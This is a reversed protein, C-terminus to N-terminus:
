LLRNLWIRTLYVPEASGAGVGFGADRGIGQAEIVLRVPGRQEVQLVTFEFPLVVEEGQAPRMRLHGEGMGHDFVEYSGELALASFKGTGVNIEQEGAFGGRGDFIAAGVAAVRQGGTSLLLEYRGELSANSFGLDLSRPGTIEPQLQPVPEAIHEAYMLFKFVNAVQWKQMLYLYARRQIDRLVASDPFYTLAWDATKGALEHDGNAIMRNVAVAIAEPSLGLYRGLLSGFDESTLADVAELQPGWYGTTQKYLRNIVSERMLLYPLQVDHQDPQLIDPPYLTMNVIEVRTRHEHILRLTERQLWALHPRFRHLTQWQSYFLTVAEHGHLVLAPQLESIWDLSRLLADLDGESNFPSGLWPVIFDGAFLIRHEPLYVFMGDPTEGGGGSILKLEFRTGGITLSETGQGGDTGILVEANFEAVPQIRFRTGLFWTYPPPLFVAEAQEVRFNDRSVFKVAPNIRRYALNGGIHDWHAHTYIVTTLPPPNAIGSERFHAQLAQWATETTDERTGGDVAILHKGDNSLIFNFESMDQGSLTFVTGNGNVSVHKIGDRLGNSDCSFLTALIIKKDEFSTYTSLRLYREAEQQNGANRYLRALQFYTERLFMYAQSAREATRTITDNVWTLDAFATQPNGLPAPLQANLLGSVWRAILKGNQPSFDPEDATVEKAQRATDLASTALELLTGAQWLTTVQAQSAKLLALSSLYVGRQWPELRPAYNRLYGEFVRVGEAQRNVSTYLVSLVLIVLSNGAPATDNIAKLYELEPQSQSGREPEPGFFSFDQQLAEWFPRLTATDVLLDVTQSQLQGAAEETARFLKDVGNEVAAATSGGGGRNGALSTLPGLALRTLQRAGELPLRWPLSLLSSVRDAM